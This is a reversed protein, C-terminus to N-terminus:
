EQDQRLIVTELLAGAACLHEQAQEQHQQVQEQEVSPPDQPHIVNGPDGLLFGLCELLTLHPKLFLLVQM